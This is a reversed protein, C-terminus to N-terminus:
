RRPLQALLESDWNMVIRLTRPQSASKLMIFNGQSDVDYAALNAGPDREFDGEFVKRLTGPLGSRLDALMMADGERYFLGERTWVPEVAGSSTLQVAAMSEDLPKVYVEDRGSADSIFAIWRGDPSVAPSRENAEGAAIPAISEGVRYLLVDRGRAPEIEYLALLRPPRSWVGPNRAVAVEATFLPRVRKPDSGVVYIKQLGDRNSGFTLLRNDMWAPSQNDGGSLTFLVRDPRGGDLVRIERTMFDPRVVVALRRRDPSLRPTQYRQGRLFGSM